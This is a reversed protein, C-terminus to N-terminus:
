TEKGYLHKVSSRWFTPRLYISNLKKIILNGPRTNARLMGLTVLDYVFAYTILVCVPLAVTKNGSEALVHSASGSNGHNSVVTRKNINRLLRENTARNCVWHSRKSFTQFESNNEKQTKLYFLPRQLPRLAFDVCKQALEGFLITFRDTEYRNHFSAPISNSSCPRRPKTRRVEPRRTSM